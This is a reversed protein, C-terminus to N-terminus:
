KDTSLSVQIDCLMDLAKKRNSDDMFTKERIVQKAPPRWTLNKKAFYEKGVSEGTKDLIMATMQNPSMLSHNFLDNLELSHWNELMFKKLESEDVWRTNGLRKGEGWEFMQSLEGGASVDDAVYKEIQDMWAKIKHRRKYIEATLSSDMVSLEGDLLPLNQLEWEHRKVCVARAPCFQCTPESPAFELGRQQQIKEAQLGMISTMEFLDGVKTEWTDIKKANWHRPQCITLNVPTDLEMHEMLGLSTLADYISRWYIAMQTNLYADVDVGQGYKLDFIDLKTGDMKILASDVTGEYTKDYFTPSKTEVMLIDGHEKARTVCNVYSWVPDHPDSLPKIGKLHEAARLHAEDGETTWEDGSRPPILHKNKELLWPM